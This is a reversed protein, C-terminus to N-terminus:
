TADSDYPTDSPPSPRPSPRPRNGNSGNSGNSGNASGSSRPSTTSSPKDFNVPKDHADDHGQGPEEDLFDRAAQKADFRRPDYKRLDVDAFEDGLLVKSIAHRPNLNRLDVDAFEPGLEDRLQERAGTALDRLTRIMRAADRALGPLKDPGLVVLGVIALVVLELPGINFV